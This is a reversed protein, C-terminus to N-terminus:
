VIALANSFSSPSDDPLEGVSSFHGELDIPTSLYIIKVYFLDKDENKRRRKRMRAM